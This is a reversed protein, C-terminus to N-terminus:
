QEELTVVGELVYPRAHAARGAIEELAQDLHRHAEVVEAVVVPAARGRHKAAAKATECLIGVPVTADLEDAEAAFDLFPEFPDLRPVRRERLGEVGQGLEHHRGGRASGARN